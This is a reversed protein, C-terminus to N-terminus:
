RETLFSLGLPSEYQESSYTYGWCGGVLYLLYAHIDKHDGWLEEIGWTGAQLHVAPKVQTLVPIGHKAITM